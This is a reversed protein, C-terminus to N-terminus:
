SFKNHVCKLISKLDKELLSYVVEQGQQQSDIFGALRLSKLHESALSASINCLKAIEGAKLDSNLLADIIKLRHPHALLKLCKAAEQYATPPLLEKM